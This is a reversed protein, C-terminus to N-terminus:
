GLCLAGRIKTLFEILHDVEMEARDLKLGNEFEIHVSTTKPIREPVPPVGVTELELMGKPAMRRKHRPSIGERNRWAVYRKYKIGEQECLKRLTMQGKMQEALEHFQSYDEVEM